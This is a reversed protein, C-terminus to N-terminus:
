KELITSRKQWTSPRPKKWAACDSCGGSRPGTSGMLAGAHDTVGTKKIKRIERQAHHRSKNEVLSSQDWISFFQPTERIESRLIANQAIKLPLYDKWVLIRATYLSRAIGIIGHIKGGESANGLADSM